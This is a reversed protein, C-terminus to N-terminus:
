GNVPPDLSLLRECDALTAEYLVIAEDLRGALQYATALDNRSNLSRPLDSALGDLYKGAQRWPERRAFVDGM